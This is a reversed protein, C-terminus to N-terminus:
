EAEGGGSAEKEAKIFCEACIGERNRWEKHCLPCKWPKM